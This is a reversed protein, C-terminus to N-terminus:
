ECKQLDKPLQAASTYRPVLGTCDWPHGSWPNTSDSQPKPDLEDAMRNYARDDVRRSLVASSPGPSTSADAAAAASPRVNEKDSDDQENDMDMDMNMSSESAAADEHEDPPQTPLLGTPHTEVVTASM